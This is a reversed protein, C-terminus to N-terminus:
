KPLLFLRLWHKVDISTSFASGGIFRGNQGPEWPLATKLRRETQNSDSLGEFVVNKATFSIM